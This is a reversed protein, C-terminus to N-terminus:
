KTPWFIDVAPSKTEIYFSKADKCWKIFSITNYQTAPITCLPQFSVGYWMLKFFWQTLSKLSFMTMHTLFFEERDFHEYSFITTAATTFFWVYDNEHCIAIWNGQALTKKKYLDHQEKMLRSVNLFFIWLSFEVTRNSIFIVRIIMHSM